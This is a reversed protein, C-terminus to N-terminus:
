RLEGWGNEVLRRALVDDETSPDARDFAGRLREFGPFTSQSFDRFALWIVADRLIVSSVDAVRAASRTDYMSFLRAAPICGAVLHSAREADIGVSRRMEEFSPLFESLGSGLVSYNGAVSARVLFILWSFLTAKNFKPGWAARKVGSGLGRIADDVLNVTFGPLPAESRYLSALDAATIKEALSKRNVALATRALVDDYAMRANSFALFRRDDFINELSGSLKKIQERVPGFFANRQEAGTLSAPQNLRFFLEAPETPKYDVIRFIRITFQNFQRRWDEPLASYSRGHLANIGPDAPEISGDVPFQGDVFDRIAVLRQQGDLVEQKKSRPQEIVHIPPVHWDRLISDILRQKKARPWVEGRQFEPQLNIDGSKIRSVITEIDPDSPLLRM